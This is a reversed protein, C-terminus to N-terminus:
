MGRMLIHGSLGVFIGAIMVGLLFGSTGFHISLVCPLVLQAIGSMLRIRLSLRLNGSARVAIFVGASILGGFLSCAYLLLYPQAETWSEGFLEIGVSDTLLSVIAMWSALAILLVASYVSAARRPRSTLWEPGWSDRRLIPVGLMALAQYLAMYPGFITVSTRQVLALTDGVFGVGILLAAQSAGSTVLFEKFLSFTEPRMMLFGGPSRSVILAHAVILMGGIAWGIPIFLLSDALIGLGAGISITCFLLLSRCVAGRANGLAIQTTRVGDAGVALMIAAAILWSFPSDVAGMIAMLPLCGVGVLLAVIVHSRVELNARGSRPLGVAALPESTLSRSVSVAIGYGILAISYSYAEQLSAVRLTAISMLLTSISVLAQDALGISFFRLVKM